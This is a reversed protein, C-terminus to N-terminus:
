RGFFLERPWLIIFNSKHKYARNDGNNQQNTTRRANNRQCMHSLRPIVIRRINKKAENITFGKSKLRERIANYRKKCSSETTGLAMVDDQFVIHGKIGDLCEEIAQQFIASANKFGQQFRCVKFLGKTTNIVSIDQAEDDLEIQYYASSLDIKAFYKAGHLKHFVTEIDPLPYAESLLKDNVHM